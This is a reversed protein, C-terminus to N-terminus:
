KRYRRSFRRRNKSSKTRLTKKKGIYTNAALLLVPAAVDTIIGSGGRRKMTRSKRSKTGQKGGM